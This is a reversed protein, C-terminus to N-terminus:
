ARPEPQRDRWPGGPLWVMKFTQGNSIALAPPMLFTELLSTVRVLTIEEEELMSRRLFANWQTRKADHGYFEQTLALPIVAPVVTRRREFTSHISEALLSGSFGFQTALTWLDYFDRMRSNAIGLVVLTQFKEAVVAERPYASVQPSPFDLITPFTVMEPPPVVTDGFGIDIQVQIRAPGLRAELVIRVGGYVQNERIAAGRITDALFRIGDDQVSTVCVERFAQELHPVDAIGKGLLDLDRTARYPRSGWVSFLAAGKLVFDSAHPSQSLRYLLREVAYRTLLVHFDESRQRALNLLRARVSAAINRVAPRTM